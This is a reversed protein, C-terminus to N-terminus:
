IRSLVALIQENHQAKKILAVDGLRWPSRAILAAFANRDYDNVWGMGRRVAPIGATDLCYTVVAAPAARAMLELARPVDHLYEFVGLVTVWDYRGPPFEGKNLDAVLAGPEREVVDCPVYVCGPALFRRLGMAGAGLDLVRSGAPIARAALAAREDWFGSVSAPDRWREVDTGGAAILQETLALRAATPQPALGTKPQTM